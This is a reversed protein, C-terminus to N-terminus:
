SNKWRRRAHPPVDYWYGGDPHPPYKGNGNPNEARRERRDSRDSREDAEGSNPSVPPIAERTPKPDNRFGDFVWAMTNGTGMLLIVPGVWLLFAGGYVFPAIEQGAISLMMGAVAFVALGWFVM